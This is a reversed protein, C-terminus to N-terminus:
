KQHAILRKNEETLEKEFDLKAKILAPDEDNTTGMLHALLSKSEFMSRLQSATQQHQMLDNTNPNDILLSKIYDKLNQNILDVPSGLSPM